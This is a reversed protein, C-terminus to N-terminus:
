WSKFHSGCQSKVIKKRLFYAISKFIINNFYFLTAVTKKFIESCLSRSSM